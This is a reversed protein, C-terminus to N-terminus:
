SLSKLYQVISREAPLSSVTKIM